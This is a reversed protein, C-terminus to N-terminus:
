SLYLLLPHLQIIDPMRLCFVLMILEDKSFTHSTSLGHVTFLIGIHPALVTSSQATSIRMTTGSRKKRPGYNQLRSEMRM